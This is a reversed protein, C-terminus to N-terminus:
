KMAKEIIQLQVRSNAELLLAIDDVTLLWLPIKVKPIDDHINTTYAKFGLEPVKKYIDKFANHYEGYADFILINAKYAISQKKEFLNQFVRAVSCSKGSGTSGFIAFHNSFFENINVGIDVGDYIPSKGLYLDRKEVYEPMGIIYKIKDKEILKIKSNFSPKKSIGFIFKGNIFEGLLNIIASNGKIDIIEGIIRKESDEISVYNNIINECEELSVSLEITLSNDEIEIIKGLM